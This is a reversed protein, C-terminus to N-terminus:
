VLAYLEVPSTWHENVQHQVNYSPRALEHDIHSRKSM